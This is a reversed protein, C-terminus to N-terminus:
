GCASTDTRRSTTEAGHQNEIQYGANEQTCYDAANQLVGQCKLVLGGSLPFTRIGQKYLQQLTENDAGFVQRGSADWITVAIM